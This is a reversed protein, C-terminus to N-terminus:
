IVGHQRISAALDALDDDAMTTRPQRPNPIIDSVQIQIISTQLGAHDEDETGDAARSGRLPILAGLGRGLGRTQASM